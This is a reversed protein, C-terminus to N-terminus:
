GALRRSAGPQRAGDAPAIAEAQPQRVFGARDATAFVIEAHGVVEDLAITLLGKQHRRRQALPQGLVMERPEDDVGDFLHIQVGEVGVVARVAVARGGVLGRHHDGQQEVRVRGLLAGRARDLEVAALVDGVPHDGGVADRVVRRDGAEDAAV